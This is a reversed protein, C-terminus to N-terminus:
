PVEPMKGFTVAITVLENQGSRAARQRVWEDAGGGENEAGCLRTGLQQVCHNQSPNPALQYNAAQKPAYGPWRQRVPRYSPLYKKSMFFRRPYKRVYWM